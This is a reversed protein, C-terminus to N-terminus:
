LRVLWDQATSAPQRAVEQGQFIETDDCLKMINVFECSLVFLFPIFGM